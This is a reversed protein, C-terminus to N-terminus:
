EQGFGTAALHEDLREALDGPGAFVGKGRPKVRTSSAAAQRLADRVLEAKTRGEVAARRALAVDVEDEIYISTKKVDIM